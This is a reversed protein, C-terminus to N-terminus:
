VLFQGTQLIQEHSIAVRRVLHLAFAQKCGNFFVALAQIKCGSMSRLVAKAFQEMTVRHRFREVGDFTIVPIDHKYRELLEPDKEINVEELSYLHACNSALIVGKAEECLHCGPRSYIIVETKVKYKRSALLNSFPNYIDCRAQNYIKLPAACKINLCIIRAVKCLTIGATRPTTYNV